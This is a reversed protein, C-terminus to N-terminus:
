KKYFAVMKKIGEKIDINPRWGLEKRIKTIDFYFSGVEFPELEKPFAVLDYRGSGCEDVIMQAVASFLIGEGSGINYVGDMIDSEMITCLADVVDDIYIFDKLDKGFGHVNFSGGSLAKKIFKEIMSRTEKGTISPGYVPPLRLIIAPLGYARYYINCYSEAATKHTGYLSIPAQCYDETIPLDNEDVRGFQMSSGIYIYKAKQNINKRAELANIQGKCNIELDIYPEFTGMNYIITALNIVVDQGQICEAVSEYRTIDGKTLRAGKFAPIHEIGEPNRCMVTVDSGQAVLKRTLYSGIFGNGGLILIKKNKMTYNSPM